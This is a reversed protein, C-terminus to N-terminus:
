IDVLDINSLHTSAQLIEVVAYAVTLGFSSFFGEFNISPKNHYKPM